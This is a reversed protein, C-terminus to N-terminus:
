NIFSVFNDYCDTVRDIRKLAYLAEDFQYVNSVAMGM